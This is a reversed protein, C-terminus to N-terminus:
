RWFLHLINVKVELYSIDTPYSFTVFFESKFEKFFGRTICNKNTGYELRPTVIQLLAIWFLPCSISKEGRNKCLSRYNVDLMFFYLIQSLFLPSVALKRENGGLDSVPMFGPRQLYRFSKKKEQLDTM